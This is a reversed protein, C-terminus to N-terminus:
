GVDGKPRNDPSKADGKDGIGEVVRIVVKAAAAALRKGGRNRILESRAKAEQEIGRVELGTEEERAAAEARVTDEITGRRAAKLERAKKVAEDKIASAGKKAEAILADFEDEKRKLRDILDEAM